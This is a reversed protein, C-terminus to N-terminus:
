PEAAEVEIERLRPRWGAQGASFQLRLYRGNAGALNVVEVHASVQRFAESKAGVWNTGDVSVELSYNRRSDTSDWTPKCAALRRPQTLDLNWWTNTGGEGVPEWYTSLSGDNARVAQHGERESSAQAPRNRALNRDVVEPLDTIDLVWTPECVGGLDEAAGFFGGALILLNGAVGGGGGGRAELLSPIERFVERQMDFYEGVITRDRYEGMGGVAFLRPGAVASSTCQTLYFV